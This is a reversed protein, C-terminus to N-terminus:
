MQQLAPVSLFHLPVTRLSPAEHNKLFIFMLGSPTWYKSSLILAEQFKPGSEWIHGYKSDEVAKSVVNTDHQAPLHPVPVVAPRHLQPVVGVVVLEVAAVVHQVEDALDLDTAGNSRRANLQRQM